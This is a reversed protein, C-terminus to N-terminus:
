GGAIPPFISLTDGDRLRDSAGKQVGNILIIKPTDDPIRFQSLVDQVAAHHPLNVRCTGNTDAGTLDRLSAYLKLTIDM